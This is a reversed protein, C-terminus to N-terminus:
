AAAPRLGHDWDQASRRGVRGRAAARHAASTGWGSTDDADIGRWILADRGRTSVFEAIEKQVDAGTRLLRYKLIFATIGRATLWAAVQRGEHEIALFHWAGGPAIIVATGNPKAEPYVTLSPQTVNRVVRLGDSLSLEEELQDWTEAGPSGGPWLPIVAQAESAIQRNM